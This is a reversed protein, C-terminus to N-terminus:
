RLLKFRIGLFEAIQSLDNKVGDLHIQNNSVTILLRGHLVIRQLIQVITKIQNNIVKPQSESVDAM